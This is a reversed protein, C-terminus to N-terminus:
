ARKRLWTILNTCNQENERLRGGFSSSPVVVDAEDRRQLKAHVRLRLKQIHRPTERGRESEKNMRALWQPKEIAQKGTRM